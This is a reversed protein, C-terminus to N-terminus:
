ENQWSSQWRSRGDNLWTEDLDDRAAWMGFSSQVVQREEEALPRLIFLREYEQISMIVAVAQSDKEVVIPNGTLLVDRLVRGFRNKVETASLAKYNMM